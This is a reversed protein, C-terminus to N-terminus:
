TEEIPQGVGTSSGGVSFRWGESTREFLAAFSGSPYHLTRGDSFVVTDEMTGSFVALDTSLVRVHTDVWSGKWSEKGEMWASIADRYGARDLILGGYAYVLLDPHTTTAVLEGDLQRL